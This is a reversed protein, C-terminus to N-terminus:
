ELELLIKIANKVLKICKKEFINEERFRTKDKPNMFDCETIEKCFPSGNENEFIKFYKHAMSYPKDKDEINKIRGFKLNLAIIGGTLAGCLSGLGGIGAGFGTAPKPTIEGLNWAEQMTMLVSEACNFGERFYSEAKVSYQEILEKLEIM